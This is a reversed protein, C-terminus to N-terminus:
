VPHQPLLLVVLGGLGIFIQGTWVTRMGRKPSGAEGPPQMAAMLPLVLSLLLGDILCLTQLEDKISLNLVAVFGAFIVALVAKFGRPLAKKRAGVKEFEAKLANAQGIQQAAAEFARQADAGSRVQQEVDDRLHSELEDLAESMRIGSAALQQRWNTIEQELNFM